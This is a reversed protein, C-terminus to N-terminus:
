LVSTRPVTAEPLPRHGHRFWATLWIAIPLAQIVHLAAGHLPKLQTAETTAMIIGILNGVSLMVMGTRAAFAYAATTPLPRPFLEVTWWAIIVSVAVILVGMTTFVAGDFPTARNFHSAVGRWQQMDILAIEAILLGAFWRAQRVLRATQPLLGVIWAMSQSLIGTSFGFTIPKRWTVPGVLSPMGAALWVGVHFLGSVLFLIGTWFIVRQAATRTM